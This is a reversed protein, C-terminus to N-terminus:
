NASAAPRKRAYNSMKIKVARPYSRDSRRPPLLYRKLSERLRTLHGPIAGPKAVADWLWEDRILHFSAVFSIRNPRVGLLKAVAAMELRVLNYLLMAAWTEQRVMAPSKSRLTLQQQFMDTKLEDYALELEWREHYVEVIERAPYRERDLLSTLLVQPAHNGHKYTIARMRWTAPLTPDKSRAEPSVKMEVLADHDSFAQIVKYRLKSKARTLWHREVGASSLGLLWSAGFYARDVVTLSHDPIADRLKVAYTLEGQAYPGFEVGALLRSRLVMAAVLRVMPYGSEGRVSQARGFEDANQQTDPVRLTTGDIGYLVLGRWREGDAHRNTWTKASCEFLWRMPEAGLRARAQSPASRAVTGEASPLALDLKSVVEEIPRDRMLAMGLVLWVVQEAPLRRRRLTAVGTAELAQEIWEVPLRERINEFSGAKTGTAAVYLASALSM